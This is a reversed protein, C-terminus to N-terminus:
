DVEASRCSEVGGSEVGGSGVGANDIKVFRIREIHRTIRRAVHERVATELLPKGSPVEVPAAHRPTHGGFRSTRKNGNDVLRLCAVLRQAHPRRFPAAVFDQLRSRHGKFRARIMDKRCPYLPRLALLSPRRQRDPNFSDFFERSYRLRPFILGFLHRMGQLQCVVFPVKHLNRKHRLAVIAPNHKGTAACRRNDIAHPHFSHPFPKATYFTYFM